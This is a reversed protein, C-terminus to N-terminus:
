LFPKKNFSHIYWDPLRSFDIASMGASYHPGCYRRRWVGNTEFGRLGHGREASPDQAEELSEERTILRFHAQKGMFTRSGVLNEVMVIQENEPFETIQM